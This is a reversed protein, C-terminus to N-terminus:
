RALYYWTTGEDDIHLVVIYKSRKTFSFGYLEWDQLCITFTRGFRNVKGTDGPIIFVDFSINSNVCVMKGRRERYGVPFRAAGVPQGSEQKEHM